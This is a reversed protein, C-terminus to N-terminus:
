DVALKRFSGNEGGFETQIFKKELRLSENTKLSDVVALYPRNKMLIERWQNNLEEVSPATGGYEVPVMEPPLEEALKLQDKIIKVRAMVKANIFPRCVTMLTDIHSPANMMITKPLRFQYGKMGTSMMKLLQLNFHTLHGLKFNKFDHVVQLGTFDVGDRLYIEMLMLSRKMHAELDYDDPDPNNIRMLIVRNGEKTLGPLIVIHVDEFSRKMAPLSPDRGQFLTPHITRLSFYTDIVNKAKSMSNKVMLLVNEIWKDSDVAKEFNPLHPQKNAWDKIAQVDDAVSDPTMNYEKYLRLKAEPVPNIGKIIM